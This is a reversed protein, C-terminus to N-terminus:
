HYRHSSLRHVKAKTKVLRSLRDQVAMTVYSAASGYIPHERYSPPKRSARDRERCEVLYARAVEEFRDLATDVAEALAGIDVQDDPQHELEMPEQPPINRRVYDIFNPM